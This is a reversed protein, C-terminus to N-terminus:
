KVRQGARAGAPDWAARVPKGQLGAALGVLVHAEDHLPLLRVLVRGGVVLQGPLVAMVGVRGDTCCGAPMCAHLLSWPRPVVRGVGCCLAQSRNATPFWLPERTMLTGGM